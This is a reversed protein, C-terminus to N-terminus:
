RPNTYNNEYEQIAKFIQLAVQPVIANGAAKLSEKRHNSLTIGDLKGSLGDNRFCVPSETPWGGNSNLWSAEWNRGEKSGIQGKAWRPGPQGLRESNAVIFHENFRKEPIAQTGQRENGFENNRSNSESHAVFWIRDRRHPAGVGAAPLIFSQVEYGESELDTQVQEFVLGGSWNVLGPVNEGIVWAPRIERVARLNEPWLHREDDTGKRKGAVSYPQCPFGGTIIDIANKYITFDTERIDSHGKAEPFHYRLVKQCFENWEVWAVTEWGMWRAALSFGGIGEFLGLHKM